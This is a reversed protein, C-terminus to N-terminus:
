TRLSKDKFHIRKQEAGFGASRHPSLDAFRLKPQRSM